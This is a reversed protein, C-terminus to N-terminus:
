PTPPLPPACPTKCSLIANKVGNLWKWHTSNLTINPSSTWFSSFSMWSHSKVVGAFCELSIFDEFTCCQAQFCMDCYLFLLWTLSKQHSWHPKHCRDQLRSVFIPFLNLQPSPLFCIALLMGFEKHCFSLDLSTPAVYWILAYFLVGFAFSVYRMLSACYWCNPYSRQTRM